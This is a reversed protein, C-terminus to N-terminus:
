HHLCGDEPTLFRLSNGRMVLEVVKILTLQGGQMIVLIPHVLFMAFDASLGGGGSGCAVM